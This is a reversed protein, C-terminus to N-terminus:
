LLEMFTDLDVVALAKKHNGEIILLPTLDGCNATAQDYHKYIAFKQLKKCEVAFPFAQAAAESLKVDIGGQGMGTSVVDRETLHPYKALVKEVVKQQLKRGKAKASQPRM